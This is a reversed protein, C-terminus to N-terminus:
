TTITIYINKNQEVESSPSRLPVDKRPLNPRKSKPEKALQFFRHETILQYYAPKLQKIITHKRGGLTSEPKMAPWPPMLIVQCFPTLPWLTLAPSLYLPGTECLSVPSPDQWESDVSWLVSGYGEGRQCIEWCKLRCRWPGSDSWSVHNHILILNSAKLHHCLSQSKTLSNCISLSLITVVATMNCNQLIKRWRDCM